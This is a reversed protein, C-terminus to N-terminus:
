RSFRAVACRAKSGLWVSLLRMWASRRMRPMRVVDRLVGAIHREIAVLRRSTEAQWRSMDELRANLRAFQERLCDVVNSSM